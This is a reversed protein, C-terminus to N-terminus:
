WSVSYSHEGSTWITQTGVNKLYAFYNVKLMDRTYSAEGYEMTINTILIDRPEETNM